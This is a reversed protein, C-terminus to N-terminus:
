EQIAATIEVRFKVRGDAAENAVAVSKELSSEIESKDFARNLDKVIFDIVPRAGLQNNQFKASLLDIISQDLNSLKCQREQTVIKNIVAVVIESIINQPLPNFVLVNQIRGFIEPNNLGQKEWGEIIINKIAEQYDTDEITYNDNELRQKEAVVAEREINSTFIIISDNFNREDNNWNLRGEDLLTMINILIKPHAKEIEDFVIVLKSNLRQKRFLEPETDSGIYGTPSGIIENVRSEDTLKNCAILHIEYGQESLSATIQKATETKGVGSPGVFFFNLPKTKRRLWVSINDAIYSFCDNQGKVSQLSAIIKSTDIQKSDNTFDNANKIAQLYLEKLQAEDLDSNLNSLSLLANQNANDWEIQYFQKTDIRINESLSSLLDKVRTKLDRLGYSSENFSFALKGLLFPHILNLKIEYQSLAFSKIHQYAVKVLDPIKLPNYVLYTNIRGCFEPKFQNGGASQTLIDKLRNQFDANVLADVPNGQFNKLHQNKQAVVKDREANSTFMLICDTFDGEKENWSLKGKDLLQMLTTIVKEHAKEIEDFLIVLRNSKELEDFLRPPTESGVYGPPSGILKYADQEQQFENMMLPVFRYGSSQLSAALLEATYTKGVGSTGILLFSLPSERKRLNFHAKLKRTILPTIESQGVVKNLNETLISEDIEITPPIIIGKELLDKSSLNQLAAKNLKNSIEKTTLKRKRLGEVIMEIDIFNTPLNNNVRFSSVINHIELVEPKDIFYTTEENIKVPPTNSSIFINGFYPSSFLMDHYAQFHYNLSNVDNSEYVIIVRNNLGHREYDGKITRFLTSYNEQNQFSSQGPSKIIIASKKTTDTLIRSVHEFVQALGHLKYFGDDPHLPSDYIYHHSNTNDKPPPTNAKETRVNKFPSKIHSARYTKKPKNLEQIEIEASLNLFKVLDSQCYSHFNNNTDYFLVIDYNESKLYLYLQQWLSYKKLDSDVFFDEHNGYIATFLGKQSINIDSIRKVAM